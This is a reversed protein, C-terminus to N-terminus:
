MGGDSDPRPYDGALERLKRAITRTSIWGPEEGNYWDEPADVEVTDLNWDAAIDLADAAVLMAQTRKDM